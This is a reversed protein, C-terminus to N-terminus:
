GSYMRLNPTNTIAAIAANTKDEHELGAGSAFIL